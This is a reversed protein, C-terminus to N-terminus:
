VVSIGFLALHALLLVLTVNGLLGPVIYRRFPINSFALSLMLLDGPFPSFGTYVYIVLQILWKPKKNLWESFHNVKRLVSGSLKHRGWSGFIYFLSDGLFLAVGAVLAMGFPNLGGLAFSVIAIYYSSSTLSSTGGILALLFLVLYSNRVGVANVIEMPDVFYLVTFLIVVVLGTLLFGKYNKLHRLVFFTYCAFVGKRTTKQKNLKLCL